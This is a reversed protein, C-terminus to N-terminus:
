FFPNTHAMFWYILHDPYLQNWYPPNSQQDEPLSVPDRSVQQAVATFKAAHLTGRVEKEKLDMEKYAKTKPLQCLDEM